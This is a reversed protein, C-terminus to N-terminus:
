GSESHHREGMSYQQRGPRWEHCVSGYGWRLLNGSSVSNRDPLDDVERGGHDTFRYLLKEDQGIKGQLVEIAELTPTDLPEYGFREFIDRLMGTVQQRVRMQAPLFDRFGSLVRPNPRKPPQQENSM